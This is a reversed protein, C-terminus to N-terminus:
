YPRQWPTTSLESAHVPVGLRERILSSLRIMGPRESAGHDIVLLSLGLYAAEQAEHYRVDATLFLTAGRAAAAEIASAGSGGMLAIRRHEGPTGVALLVDTGLRRQVLRSLERSSIGEPSQALVGFGASNDDQRPLLPGDVALGLEQALAWSIGGSAADWNTHATLISIRAELARAVIRGIRTSTDVTRLPHFLLPHHALVVNANRAVAEEVVELTADV